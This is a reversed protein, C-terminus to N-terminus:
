ERAGSPAGVGLEFWVIKGTPLQQAGWRRAVGSVILLGRGSSAVDSPPRVEPMLASGDCVSVRVSLEARDWQVGVVMSTGAHRIVNSCLESLLLQADELGVELGWLEFASGLFQRCRSSSEPL